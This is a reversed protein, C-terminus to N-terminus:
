ISCVTLSAVDSKQAIKSGLQRKQQIFAALSWFQVSKMDSQVM